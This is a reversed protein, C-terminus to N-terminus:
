NLKKIFDLIEHGNDWICVPAKLCHKNKDFGEINEGSLLKNLLVSCKYKNRVCAVGKDTLRLIPCLDNHGDGVYVVRDYKVKNAHQSRMFDELIMGKCLNKTSLTCQEQFHYMKIRLQGKDNYKAPNSFVRLVTTHLNNAELWTQIFHTNSDSIIIVDYNMNHHLENILTSMGDVEPIEKIINDIHIQAVRNEHLVEFIGQMYATWGDSRYLNRLDDTIKCKDILNLVVTDSNDNIVTHDFDFVALNKVKMVKKVQIQEIINIVVKLFWSM